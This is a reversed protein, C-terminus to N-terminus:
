CLDISSGLVRMGCGEAHHGRPAGYGPGTRGAQQCNVGLVTSRVKCQIDAFTVVTSLVDKSASDLDNASIYCLQFEEDIAESAVM